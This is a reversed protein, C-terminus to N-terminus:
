KVRYITKTNFFGVYDDKIHERNIFKDVVKNFEGDDIKNSKLVLYDINKLEDLHNILNIPKETYVTTGFEEESIPYVSGTDSVIQYDTGADEGIYKLYNKILYRRSYFIPAYGYGLFFVQMGSKDKIEHKEECPDAYEEFRLEKATELHAAKVKEFEEKEASDYDSYFRVLLELFNKAGRGDTLGHHFSLKLSNKWYTVGMLHYNNSHGGLPIFGETNVAVLPNENKVAFFDGEREEFRVGFYPYRQLTDEIALNLIEGNVEKKMRVDYVESPLGKSRYLYPMGSLAKDGNDLKDKIREDMM